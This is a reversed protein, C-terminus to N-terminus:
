CPSPPPQANLIIARDTPSTGPTHFLATHTNRTRHAEALDDTTPFRRCTAAFPGLYPALPPLALITPNPPNNPAPNAGVVGTITAPAQGLVAQPAPAAAVNQIPGQPGAGLQNPNPTVITNNPNTGQQNRPPTLFANIASPDPNVNTM